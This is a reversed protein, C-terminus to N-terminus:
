RYQVPLSSELLTGTGTGTAMPDPPGRSVVCFIGAAAERSSQNSSIKAAPKSTAYDCWQQEREPWRRRDGNWGIIAREPLTLNKESLPKPKM